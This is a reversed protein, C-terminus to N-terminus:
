SDKQGVAKYYGSSLQDDDAAGKARKVLDTIWGGLGERNDDSMIPRGNEVEVHPPNIDLGPIAGDAGLHGRTSLLEPSGRDSSLSATEPNPTGMATGDGFLANMDELRVNATEPYIFYVTRTDAGSDQLAPRLWPIMGVIFSVACFFAHILYLRWKIWEQLVPTLEGVLWNFAWNTATSLSAGKSRISLPLIEPSYLWPIPGTKM